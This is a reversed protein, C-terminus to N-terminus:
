HVIKPPKPKLPFGSEDLCYILRPENFLGTKHLTDQLTRFYEVIADKSAAKAKAASLNSSTNLSIEPYCRCFSAWWGHTVTQANQRTLMREVLALVQLRSFPFGIFAILDTEDSDTLSFSEGKTITTWLPGPYVMNLQLVPSM